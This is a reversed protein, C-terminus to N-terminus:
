CPASTTIINGPEPPDLEVAKALKAKADDMKKDAALALAYNNYTGADNPSVEVLKDFAAFSKDYIAPADASKAAKASAVYADALAAWVAPQTPGLVSAKTLQTIAEDWQKNDMAAKGAGFADNLEKNKALQAEREKVKPDDKAGPGKAEAPEAVAVQGAPQLKFNQEYGGDKVKFQKITDRVTGDVTVTLTYTDPLMTAVYHGKKDTKVEVHNNGGVRDFAV